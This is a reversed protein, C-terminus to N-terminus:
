TDSLLDSSVLTSWVLVVPVASSCRLAAGQPAPTWGDKSITANKSCAEAATEAGGAPELAAVVAVGAAVGVAVGVAVAVGAPEDAELSPAVGHAAVVPDQDHGDGRHEGHAAVPLQGQRGLAGLRGVEGRLDVVLLGLKGLALPQQVGVAAGLLGVLR